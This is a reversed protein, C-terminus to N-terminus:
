ALRSRQTKINREVRFCIYNEVYTATLQSNSGVSLKNDNQIAADLTSPVFAWFEGSDPDSEYLRLVIVDGTDATVTINLTDIAGSNLNQGADTVRIFMLEGALYTEAPILPIEDDLKVLDGGTTVPNGIPIFEGSLAGSPSFDSGNISRMIPSPATPSNRFFEIVAPTAPPRITFIARNTAISEETSGVSYSVSAVNVVDTGFNQAYAVDGGAM